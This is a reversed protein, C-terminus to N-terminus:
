AKEVNGAGGQDGKEECDEKGVQHAGQDISQFAHQSPAGAGNGDDVAEQEDQDNDKKHQDARFHGTLARLQPM